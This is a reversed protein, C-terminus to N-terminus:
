TASYNTRELAATEPAAFHTFIGTVPRLRATSAPVPLGAQALLSIQSVARTYTRKGGRNPGTLIWVRVSDTGFSISNTLHLKPELAILM